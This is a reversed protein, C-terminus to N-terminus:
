KVNDWKTSEVVGGVKCIQFSLESLNRSSGLTMSDTPPLSPIKGKQAPRHGQWQGPGWLGPFHGGVTRGGALWASGLAVGELAFELARHPAGQAPPSAQTPHTGGLFHETSVHGCGCDLHSALLSWLLRLAPTLGALFLLAQCSSGGRPRSWPAWSSTVWRSAWVSGSLARFPVPFLSLPSSVLSFCLLCLTLCFSAPPQPCVCLSLPHGQEGGGVCGLAVSERAAGSCFPFRPRLRCRM